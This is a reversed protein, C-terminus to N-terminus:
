AKIKPLNGLFNKRVFHQLAVLMEKFVVNTELPSRALRHTFSVNCFWGSPFQREKEKRNTASTMNSASKLRLKITISKSLFIPPIVLFSYLYSYSFCNFIILIRKKWIVEQINNTKETSNWFLNKNCHIQYILFNIRFRNKYSDELENKLISWNLNFGNAKWKHYAISYKLELKFINLSFAPILTKKDKQSVNKCM